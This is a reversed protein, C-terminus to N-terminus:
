RQVFHTAHRYSRGGVTGPPLQRDCRGSTTCIVVPTKNGSDDYVSAAGPAAFAGGREDIHQHIHLGNVQSAAALLAVNRNGPALVAHQVGPPTLDALGRTGTVRGFQRAKQETKGTKSM